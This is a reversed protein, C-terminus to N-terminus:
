LSTSSLRAVVRLFGGTVVSNHVLLSPLYIISYMTLFSSSPYWTSSQYWSDQSPSSNRWVKEQFNGWCFFGVLISHTKGFPVLKSYSALLNTHHSHVASCETTHGGSRLISWAVWKRLQSGVWSNGLALPLQIVLNIDRGLPCVVDMSQYLPEIRRGGNPFDKFSYGLKLAGQSNAPAVITIIDCNSEERQSKDLKGKREWINGAVLYGFWDTKWPVEGEAVLFAVLHWKM